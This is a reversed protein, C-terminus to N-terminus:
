PSHAPAASREYTPVFTRWLTEGSPPVGFGAVWRRPLADYM